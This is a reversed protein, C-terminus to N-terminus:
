TLALQAYHDQLWNSVDESAMPKAHLYGQMLDCGMSSLM